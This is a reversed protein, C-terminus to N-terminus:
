AKRLIMYVLTQNLLGYAIEGFTIPGIFEGMVHGKLCGYAYNLICNVSLTPEGDIKAVDRAFVAEYDDIAAALRYEVDPFLPAYFDVRKAELDVSKISVNIMAGSYNAVLPLRQDLRHATLYEAFNVATGNVFAKRAHFATRDVTIIDGTGQTFPNVIGIEAVVDKKLKAHLCLGQTSSWHGTRGDVVKPRHMGIQDLEVGAVWGMLPRDYVGPFSSITKAFTKHFATFAPIILYSFGHQPEDALLVGLESEDYFRTVFSVVESPLSSVFLKDKSMMGGEVGVFYPITGGVWDGKPLRRLLAEEGAVVVREKANIRAVVEEVSLLGRM